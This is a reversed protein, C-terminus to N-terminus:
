LIKGKNLKNAPDHRKKVIEIIKKDNPELYKKKSLGIGHEGTIQGQLKKVVWFMEDILEQQEPKFCPHIIGVGIHGFFPIRKEELWKVLEPIKATLMKPDEIITYGKDALVPYANDRTKMIKNYEKDHLNGKYSEYEILLHYKEELGLLISTTKDFFEIMSVESDPKIRKVAEMIDRIDDAKVLDASRKKIPSLNLTARVIIGTIGEMGCFDMMDLKGIKKLNGHGDIVEISQVWDCTRGYKVARSGVANTAIMGGISCFGHSSPNVPFELDYKKLAEQLEDLIIGTEVYAIKKTKDVELIKNMKSLDIVISNQPVAGGALGSGAGRPVMNTETRILSEIEGITKPFIVKSVEGKITSADSNYVIKDIEEPKPNIKIKDAM